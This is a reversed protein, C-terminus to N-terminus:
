DPRYPRYLWFIHNCRTRTKAMRRTAVPTLHVNCFQRVYSQWKKLGQIFKFGAHLYLEFAESWNHESLQLDAVHKLKKGEKLLFEIEGPNSPADPKSELQSATPKEPNDAVPNQKVEAPKEKPTTDHHRSNSRSRKRSSTTSHSSQNHRHPSRSGSASRDHRSKRDRSRSRTRSRNRHSYYHHSSTPSRIHSTPSRIKTAPSKSKTRSPSKPKTHTPSKYKAPSKSRTRSRSRAKQSYGHRSDKREQDNPYKDKHKSGTGRQKDSDSHSSHVSTDHEKRRIKSPSGGVLPEAARRTGLCNESKSSHKVIPVPEPEEGKEPVKAPQQAEVHKEVNDTQTSNPSLSPKESLCHPSCIDQTDKQPVSPPISSCLSPQPEVPPTKVPLDSLAQEKSDRSQNKSSPEYKPAPETDANESIRINGLRSIRFTFGCQEVIRYGDRSSKSPSHKATSLSDTTTTLNEQTETGTQATEPKSDKGKAPTESSIVNEQQVDEKLQMKGSRLVVVVTKKKPHEGAQSVPQNSDSLAVPESKDETFLLSHSVSPVHSATNNQLTQTVSGVTKIPPSDQEPKVTACQTSRPSSKSPALSPPQSQQESKLNVKIEQTNQTHQPAQSEPKPEVHARSQTQEQQRTPQSTPQASITTKLPVAKPPTSHMINPPTRTVSKTPPTTRLAKISPPTNIPPIVYSSESLPSLFPFEYATMAQACFLPNNPLVFCFCLFRLFRLVEVMKDVSLTETESAQTILYKGESLFSGWGYQPDNSGRAVLKSLKEIQQQQEQTSGVALM